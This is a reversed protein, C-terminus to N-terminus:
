DLEIELIDLHVEKELMKKRIDSLKTLSYVHPYKEISLVVGTKTVFTKKLM